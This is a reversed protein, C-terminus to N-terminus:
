AGPPLAVGLKSDFVFNNSIKGNTIVCSWLRQIKKNILECSESLARIEAATFDKPSYSAGSKGRVFKQSEATNFNSQGEEAWGVFWTRHLMDNRTEIASDVEKFIERLIKRDHDDLIVVEGILSQLITKLPRATHEALLVASVNLNALGQKQLILQTGM